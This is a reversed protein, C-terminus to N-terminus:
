MNLSQRKNKEAEGKFTELYNYYTVESLPHMFIDKWTDIRAQFDPVRDSSSNIKNEEKGIIFAEGILVKGLDNDIEYVSGLYGEKNKTTKYLSYNIDSFSNIIIAELDNDTKKGGILCEGKYHGNADIVIGEFIGDDNMIIQGYWMDNKEFKKNFTVNWYGNITFIKQM